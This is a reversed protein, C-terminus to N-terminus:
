RSPEKASTQSSSSSNASRRYLLIFGLLLVVLALGVIEYARSYIRAPIRQIDQGGGTSASEPTALQGSGEIEVSYESGPVDYVSAQTGPETGILSIEDGTLTVGSPAVLRVPSGGHLVKGSFVGSEPAPLAYTLDFRTEGPKIPFDIKYIEATDTELINRELPMSRPATVTLRPSGSIQRPLYIRLVGNDPDNYTLRGQNSIVIIENVHLIGGMPELLVMHQSVESGSSNSSSDFVELELGTTDAGPQLMRNYAVGSYVAEILHPGQPTDEMHFAGTSDTQVTRVPTMGSQSLSYLTIAAEPQPKGSTGNVVTGNVAAHAAPLILLLILLLRM